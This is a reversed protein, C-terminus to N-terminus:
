YKEHISNIFDIERMVAARFGKPKRMELSSANELAIVPLFIDVRDKFAKKSNTDRIDRLECYRETIKQTIRGDHFKNSGGMVHEYVIKAVDQAPDSINAYEWDVLFPVVRDVPWILHRVRLDRHVISFSDVSYNQVMALIKRLYEYDLDYASLTGIRVSIYRKLYEAYEDVTKIPYKLFPEKSLIMSHLESAILLLAELKEETTRERLPNNEIYEMIITGAKISADFVEPVSFMKCSRIPSSTLWHIENVLEHSHPQFEKVFVKGDGSCQVSTSHCQTTNSGVENEDGFDNKTDGDSFSKKQTFFNVYYDVAGKLGEDISVRPNYGLSKIRGIDAQYNFVEGILNEGVSIASNSGLIRKLKEAVELLSLQVGSAINYEKHKASEWNDLLCLIGQVCDDLYTFDLTKNKGYICVGQNNLLQDIVKPIFRDSFDFRGYVNSFRVIKCDIGYCHQYSHCYAEGAIKNATYVSKSFRQTAVDENVPLIDQDGYVERSSAFIFKKVENKRVWELTNHTMIGNDLAKSPDLVLEYVRANAALHIVIDIKSELKVKVPKLLDVLNHNFDAFFEPYKKDFGFVVHGKELLSKALASGIMGSSGTILVNM